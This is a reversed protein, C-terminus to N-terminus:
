GLELSRGRQTHLTITSTREDTHIVSERRGAESCLCGERVRLNRDMTHQKQMLSVTETVSLKNNADTNEMTNCGALHLMEESWNDKAQINTHTHPPPPYKKSTCVYTYMIIYTPNYWLYTHVHIGHVPNSRYVCMRVHVCACM